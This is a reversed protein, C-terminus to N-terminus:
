RFREWVVMTNGDQELVHAPKYGNAYRENLSNTFANMNISGKNVEAEYQPGNPKGATFSSGGLLAM